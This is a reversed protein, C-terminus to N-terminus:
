PNPRRGVILSIIQRPLSGYVEHPRLAPDDSAPDLSLMPEDEYQIARLAYILLVKKARLANGSSCSIARAVDDANLRRLSIRTM